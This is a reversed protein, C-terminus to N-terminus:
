HFLKSWGEDAWKEQPLEYRLVHVNQHFTVSRTSRDLRNASSSARLCSPPKKCQLVSDSTVKRTASLPRNMQYGIKPRPLFKSLFFGCPVGHTSEADEEYCVMDNRAENDHDQNGQCEHHLSDAHNENCGKTNTGDNSDNTDRSTDRREGTTRWYSKFISRTQSDSLSSEDSLASVVSSDGDGTSVSLLDPPFSVLVVDDGYEYNPRPLDMSGLEYDLSEDCGRLPRKEVRPSLLLENDENVEYQM